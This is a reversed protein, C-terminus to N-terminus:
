SLMADDGDDETLPDVYTLLTLGLKTAIRPGHSGKGSCQDPLGSDSQVHAL